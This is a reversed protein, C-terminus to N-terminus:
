GPRGVDNWRRPDSLLGRLYQINQAAQAPPLDIREIQEAEDFRGQLALAIALNQRAEAPAGPMAVAQRLIAEADAPDGAMIHSVGMNTLVRVNNPEIALAEQYAQRAEAFRGLQDLAAGLASRARWNQPEGAAVLALPRLAQQPRGLAIQAYGFTTLLDRDEPFRSLAEGAIQAARDTRGGKRLAESFRKAAELDNPFTQYEGAWFAMQTLTDERSIRERAQRDIPRAGPPAGSTDVAAQANEGGGMTACAGLSSVALLALPLAILQRSM